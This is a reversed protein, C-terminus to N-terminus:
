KPTRGTANLARVIAQEMSVSNDDVLVLRGDRKTTVIVPKNDEIVINIETKM